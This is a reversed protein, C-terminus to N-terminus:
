QEATMPRSYVEGLPETPDQKERDMDTLENTDIDSSDEKAPLAEDRVLDSNTNQM